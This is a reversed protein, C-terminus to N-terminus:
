IAAIQPARSAAKAVRLACSKASVPIVSISGHSFPAHDAFEIIRSTGLRARLMASAPGILSLSMAAASSCVAQFGARDRRYAGAAHPDEVSPRQDGQVTSVPVGPRQDRISNSLTKSRHHGRRDDRLRPPRSM